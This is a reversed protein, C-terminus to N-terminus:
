VQRNADVEYLKREEEIPIDDMVGARVSDSLAKERAPDADPYHELKEPMRATISEMASKAM